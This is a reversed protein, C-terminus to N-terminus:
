CKQLVVAIGQGGGICASGVAYEQNHKQLAHTLHAVIRAGSAALPHGVATAGGCMNTKKLDLKLEKACALFQACFAENIEIRDMADLSLKSKKLAGLIAPVPGYGMVQPDVGEVHYSVIKALPKLGYQEVAKKSALVIAGAGDNIGSANGATVVGDKLFVPKLKALSELTANPRPHEDKKYKYAGLKRDHLDVEALEADFEGAEFALQM